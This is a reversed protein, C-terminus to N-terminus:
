FDQAKGLLVVEISNSTQLVCSNLCQKIASVVNNQYSIPTSRMRKIKTVVLYNVVGIPASNELSAFDGAVIAGRGFCGRSHEAPEKTVMDAYRCHIYTVHSGSPLHKHIHIAMACKVQRLSGVDADGGLM